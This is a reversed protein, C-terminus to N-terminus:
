NETQLTMKLTETEEVGYTVCVSGDEDFYLDTMTEYIKKPLVFSVIEKAPVKENLNMECVVLRPLNEKEEEEEMPAETFALRENRDSFAYNGFCTNTWPTVFARKDNIWLSSQVLAGDSFHPENGQYILSDTGPIIAYGNSFFHERLYGNLVDFLFYEETSPNVHMGVCIMPYIVWEMGTVANGLDPRWEMENLIEGNRDMVGFTWALDDAKKPPVYYFYHEGAEDLVFGQKEPNEATIEELSPEAKKEEIIPVVVERLNKGELVSKKIAALHGFGDMVCPASNQSPDLGHSNEDLGFYLQDGNLIVRDAHYYYGGQSVEDYCFVYTYQDLPYKEEVMAWVQALSDAYVKEREDDAESEEQGREGIRVVENEKSYDLQEKTELMALKYRYERWGGVYGCQFSVVHAEEETLVTGEIERGIEKGSADKKGCAATIVMFTILLILWGRKRM